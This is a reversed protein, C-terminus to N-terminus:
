EPINGDATLEYMKSAYTSWNTAAKYANLISHDSSYPVYIKLASSTGNFVNTGITPPTTAKIVFTSLSSCGAFTYSRIDNCNNGINVSTLTSVNQFSGYGNIDFDGGISVLLPMDVSTLQSGQFVRDKIIEAKSLDINKLSANLFAWRGIETVNGTGTVTELSSCGYFSSGGIYTCTLPLSVRKLSSDDKFIGIQNSGDPITTFTGGSLDANILSACNSFQGYSNDFSSINVKVSSLPCYKFAERGITLQHNPFAINALATNRFAWTVITVVSDPLVISRLSSCGDFASSNIQTLGTFYRLEDFTEILTNSKFYASLTTVAAAAAMTVGEGDGWQALAISKVVLDAFSIYMRAPDYIVYLTGFVSSLARKLGGPWDETQIIDLPALDDMYMGAQAQVTGEIVPNGGLSGQADIGGYNNAVPQDDKDKNSAINALMHIDSSNVINIGGWILRIYQLAAGTSGYCDKLMEFADQYACNEVQLTRVVAVDSPMTLNALFKLNKLVVTNTVDSLSLTVIKSGNPLVVSTVGTGNFLASLLRTCASLDIEGVLSVANQADITELCKTNIFGVSPINTMVPETDDGIKFERLKEAVVNIRDVYGAALVIDKWDGLSELLNTAQIYVTTNGDVVINFTKEQGAETRTTPETNGSGVSLAPYMWMMPTLKVPPLSSPRFSIQGMSFDSYSRFTGVKFMSMVYIARRTCWLQEAEYHNGLSQTLPPVSQSGPTLWATEYKFMADINYASAPFVNQANDWFYTKFFNVVGTFPNSGGGLSAMARVVDYGISEIGKNVGWDEWFVEYLLNWFVSTSGAFIVSGNEADEFEIYYEKTDSGRNDIDFVTDLDDQRWKWRGGSALPAMKYPYTNKGFNDTAGLIVCFVFHYAADKIDWYNPAQALFRARRQAKFWENKEDLTSGSPSGNQTFLNIDPKYIGEKIDYYYLVYEGEIWFEMDVNGFRDNYTANRFALANANINALVAAANAGGYTPDALAIPFILTSNEWVVDYAPKFEDELFDQIDAETEAAGSNGVEWGNDFTNNNIVINLCENSARYEVENNWPYQFRVMRRSHDTGEMSILEDAISDDINYGFTPKDGKDPGITFLGIFEYSPVGNIITRSFGFAPYEYVAVMPHPLNHSEAFAQAENQLEIADYLENFALTAGIKHSQMSSAFNIKACIRMVAPHQQVTGNAGGDFCVTKQVVPTQPHYVKNGDLGITPADYYAVPVTKSPNTKKDDIRWRLNWRYYDMSTTGQGSIPVNELKFDWDPHAGYHMELDCKGSTEKDWGNARSPVTAGNRMEVVFFNYNQPANAVKEYTIETVDEDKVSNFFTAVTQRDQLTELSNIYNKEAATVGLPKRYVRIFYVYIDATSSGIIIDAPTAWATTSGYDFELNKCGNLYATVLNKGAFQGFSNQISILLHQTQEDRFSKGRADDDTGSDASSHITFRTPRIRIGQFDSATPNGAITIVNEDYDSVNAVRFCIEFTINDGTMVQYPITCKSGAPILLAKRGNPDSTWGDIGDVWAMRQWTVTIETGPNTASNIIKERNADNNSRSTTNMFFAAGTEAPYTASNDIPIRGGQASSGITIDFSVSLNVIEETLWQVTYQLSHAVGTTVGPETKDVDTTPTTGLWLKILLHPDGISFGANYLAYDCLNATSYNYVLDAVNNVVVIQATTRDTAAVHMFNYSVPISVLDGATLYAKCVFVGTGLGSLDLGDALGYNYPVDIFSSTGLLVENSWVLSSGQYIEVHLTKSASGVIKFGGLKYTPDGERDDTEVLANYWTNLMPEIYMQSLSIAYIASATVTNDDEDVFVVKVRNNGVILYNRIDFNYQTGAALHMAGAPIEVYTGTAGIDIYLRVDVGTMTSSWAEDSIGKTQVDFDLSLVLETQNTAANINYTGNNNTLAIRWLTSSFEMRTSSVILETRTNDQAFADRDDANHFFYLINNVPNFWAAGAANQLNTKIFTQVASGPYPLGNRTDLGWDDNYDRIPNPSTERAM